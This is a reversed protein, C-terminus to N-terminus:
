PRDATLHLGAPVASFARSLGALLAPRGGAADQYVWDRAAASWATMTLDALVQLRLDDATLGLRGALVERADRKVQNRHRELYALLADATLVLRRTAVYRADWDAPLGAAAATLAECLGAFVLGHPERAALAALWAAWLEAEAEIAVAEKAPFTRFFTSKSVEVQDALEDVTVAEFGRAAFLRLAADALARRTRLKKRERLPLSRDDAPTTEM